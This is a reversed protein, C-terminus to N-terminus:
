PLDETTLRGARLDAYNERLWAQRESEKLAVFRKLASESRECILFSGSTTWFSQVSDYKGAQWVLWGAVVNQAEGPLEGPRACPDSGTRTDVLDEVRTHEEAVLARALESQVYEELSVGSDANWRDFVGRNLDFILLGDPLLRTPEENGSLDPERQEARTPAGPLGSLPKAVEEIAAATEPLAREYAPHVCVTIRGDKCVPEYPVPAGQAEPSAVPVALLLVAASAAVTTSAALVTWPILTRGRTLAVVALALAALGVLWLSQAAYPNRPGEHFVSHGYGQGIPSLFQASSDQSFVTIGQIWYMAIAFFPAVLRGPILCGAAYGIASHAVVAVLGVVVPWPELSGWTVGRNTLVLFTGAVLAYALVYWATTAAWQALDRAFAPRSTTALLDNMDRRKERGAAWVSTGGVLPGYLILSYQIGTVTDPWFWIGVPLSEYVVWALAAAMFPVLLLVLSRRVEMLLLSSWGLSKGTM